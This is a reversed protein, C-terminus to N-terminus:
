SSLDHSPTKVPAKAGNGTLTDKQTPWRVPAQYKGPEGKAFPAGVSVTQLGHWFNGIHPKLPMAGCGGQAFLASLLTIGM